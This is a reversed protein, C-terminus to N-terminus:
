WRLLLESSRPFSTAGCTADFANMSTDPDYSIPASCGKTLWGPRTSLKRHESFGVSRRVRGLREDFDPAITAISGDSM